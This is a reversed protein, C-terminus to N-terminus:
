TTGGMLTRLNLLAEDRIRAIHTKSLSLERALQRLPVGRYFLAEIVWKERADLADIADALAEKRGLLELYSPQPEEFPEAEMLAQIPTLPHREMGVSLDDIFDIQCPVERRTPM